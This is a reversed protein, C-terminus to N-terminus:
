RPSTQWARHSRPSSFWPLSVMAPRSSLRNKLPPSPM